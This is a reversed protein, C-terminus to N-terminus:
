ALEGLGLAFYPTSPPLVRLYRSTATTNQLSIVMQGSTLPLEKLCRVHGLSTLCM